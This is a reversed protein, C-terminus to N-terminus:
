GYFSLCHGDADDFLKCNNIITMSSRIKSKYVGYPGTGTDNVFTFDFHKTTRHAAKRAGMKPRLALQLRAADADSQEGASSLGQSFVSGAWTSSSMQCNNPDGTVVLWRLSFPLEAQVGVSRRTRTVSFGDNYHRRDRVGNVCPPAKAQPAGAPLGDNPQISIGGSADLTTDGGHITGLRDVIATEGRTMPVQHQRAGAASPLVLLSVSVTLYALVPLPRAM